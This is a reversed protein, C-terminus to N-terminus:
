YSSAAPHRITIDLLLDPVERGGFGWVDLVAEAQETAFEVVPTERRIHAGGEAVIEGVEDAYKDSIVSPLMIAMATWVSVVYTKM